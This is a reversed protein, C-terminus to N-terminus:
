YNKKIQEHVYTAIKLISVNNLRSMAFKINYPLKDLKEQAEEREKKTFDKKNNIIKNFNTEIARNNLDNMFDILNQDNKFLNEIFSKISEYDSEKIENLELNFFDRSWSCGTYWYNFVTDLMLFHKQNNKNMWLSFIILENEFTWLQIQIHEKEIFDFQNKNFEVIYPVLSM